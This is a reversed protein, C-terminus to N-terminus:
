LQVCGLNFAAENVEVTRPPVRSLVAERLSEKDFPLRGSAALAGLLVVNMTRENGAEVALETADFSVVNESLRNLAKLLQPVAPYHDAGINADMSPIPRTNTVILTEENSYKLALRLTENPELGLLVDLSGAPCLPGHVDDGIRVHSHVKGGRQAAGFTEGVRVRHGQKVAAEAIIHSALVSGQGGVGTVILNFEKLGMTTV